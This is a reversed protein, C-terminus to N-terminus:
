LFKKLAEINNEHFKLFDKSFNLVKKDIKDKYNDIKKNMDLVGMTFGKILMDAVRSDSNDKMMEMKIGMSASLKSLSGTEKCEGKYKKLLKKTDEVYREYGKLEDEIVDKIKNDKNNITNLLDTLTSVGMSADKYIHTLIEANVNM